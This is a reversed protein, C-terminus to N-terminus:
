KYKPDLAENVTGFLSRFLNAWKDLSPDIRRIERGNDLFTVQNYFLNEMGKIWQFGERLDKVQQELSGILEEQRDFLEDLKTTDQKVSYAIRNLAAYFEDSRKKKDM